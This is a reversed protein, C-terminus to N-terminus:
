RDMEAVYSRRARATLRPDKVRVELRHTRGDLKAPIFGLLYQQHLEEVVRAMTPALDANRRLEFRGGGTEDALAVINKHLGPGELGIAYLLFGQEIARSGVAAPQQRREKTVASVDSGDTLALLVRRGPEDSLSSMAIDLAAYLPTSGGPWLEEEIIRTLRSRDGTLWPSMAVESGFTGIRVRDGPDLQSIFHRAAERIREFEGAVSTSMDLLLVVTMPQQDNSFVTLEVPAGDDLVQFESRALKSVLRGSGDQVTAYVPVVRAAGRFAQQAPLTAPRWAAALLLLGVLVALSRM